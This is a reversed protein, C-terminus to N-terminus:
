CPTRPGATAAATASTGTCTPRRGAPCRRWTRARRSAKAGPVDWQYPDANEDFPIEVVPVPMTGAIENRWTVRLPRGRRAEIVPGPFLGDFGWIKTPPLQSHLRVTAARMRITLEGAGNGYAPTLRPLPDLFPTLETVTGRFPAGSPARNAAPRVM